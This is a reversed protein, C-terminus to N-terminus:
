KKDTKNKATQELDNFQEYGCYVRGSCHCLGFVIILTGVIMICDRVSLNFDFGGIAPMKYCGADFNKNREM